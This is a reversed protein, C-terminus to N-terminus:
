NKQSPAGAQSFAKNFFVALEGGLQQLFAPRDFGPPNAGVDGDDSAIPMAPTDMFAFHWANSVTHLEFAPAQRAIWDARFRQVLFRDLAADYIATPVRISALSQASLVAGVPALAVVARVRADALVAMAGAPLAAGEALRAPPASRGVGCFIPDDGRNAECHAALRSVDPRAGALALATYGGASHGLVGVRAGRADKAIRGAWEPDALLADIVRSVQRPRQTLYNAASTQLLSRDQWNDGPHRLAAVLYGHQALAQALSTHGLESGGTGHSIVVLGKVTAEPAGQVAANVTSPGMAIERAPAQTPYYLAVGIPVDSTEAGAVTLQRRGAQSAWAHASVLLTLVILAIYRPSSSLTPRM